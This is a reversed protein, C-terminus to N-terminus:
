EESKRELHRLYIATIYYTVWMVPIMLVLLILIKYVAKHVNFVVMMMLALMLPNVVNMIRLVKQYGIKEVDIGYYEIFIRLDPSINKKDYELRKRVFLLYYMISLLIFFVIFSIGYVLYKM